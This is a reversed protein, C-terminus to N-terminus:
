TRSIYTHRRELSHQTTCSEWRQGRLIWIQLQRVDDHLGLCLQCAAASPLSRKRAQGCRSLSHAAQAHM